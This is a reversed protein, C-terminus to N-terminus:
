VKNSATADVSDSENEKKFLKLIFGFLGTAGKAGQEYRTKNKPDLRSRLGEGVFNLSFITLSIIACPWVLMLPHSNM